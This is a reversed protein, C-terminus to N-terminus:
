EFTSLRYSGSNVNFLLGWASRVLGSCPSHCSELSSLLLFAAAGAISVIRTVHVGMTSHLICTHLFSHLHFTWRWQISVRLIPFSCPLPRSQCHSLIREISSACIVCGQVDVSWDVSVSSIHKMSDELSEARLRSAQLMSTQKM